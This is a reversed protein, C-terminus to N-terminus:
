AISVTVLLHGAHDIAALGFAAVIQEAATFLLGGAGVAAMLADARRGALFAGCKEALAGRQEGCLATGASPM